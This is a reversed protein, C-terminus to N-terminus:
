ETAAVSQRTGYEKRLVEISVWQFDYNGASVNRLICVGAQWFKGAAGAWDNIYDQYCGAVLGNITQGDVNRETCFDLVHVHSAVSSVKNKQVLMRGPSIGGMPRGSVGTPFYHAFLIGEHKFIGPLNGDYRIVEHYYDEFQYDKFGITGALEPSLDLAKEIRHEHNGELVVRFPMKKKTARVPEWWREQFELHAEIDQKYSKGVYSRKGKDYESLSPMDAADGMNIVVDPKLDITLGALYDARDNNQRYHAHQDPVVLITKSM